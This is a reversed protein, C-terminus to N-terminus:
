FRFNWTISPIIGFLTTRVAETEGKNTTSERFDIRYANQRNYLNYFSLNLDSYRKSNDKITYTFGIDARHYNPMRYGNRQTYLNVLSGDVRYKGSPFTVADGTYYIFTGAVTLKKTLQYTVVVSVDHTRDQRASFWRGNNIATFQRETKALTYGIWGTLKGKNKRLLFEGGYARGIGFVLDAEIDPNLFADAGDKYDAVNNLKKYYTEFNFEYENEKFNKFFGISVQDAFLPKLIPSSMLYMDTPEGASSNSLLHLYQFNRNYSAKISTKENLVFTANFRPEFGQYTNFFQGKNFAWIDIIEGQSNYTKSDTPGVNQFLSYRLGYSLSLKQGIKQENSIYFGSEFAQRQRITLDFNRLSTDTTSFRGPSLTHHIVNWGFAISNKPNAYYNFDQKINWDKIGSTLNILRQSEKIRFGYNYDSYILSTNLFLKQSFNHNWRLTATKNGWDFGFDSVGFNDRGLYGSVYIRDKKTIQYNAKLNYDYFYLTNNRITDIIAKAILDAYTRRASFILSGKDKKIPGEVTLRSSILGIGGSVSWKQMNGNKMRIDLVSSARGGYQAPVGGKYLKVDKLADSNFVSFFGLLHSANYVPAEDLLILNQDANGGRVFFGSNGEGSTKVGPLMQITKLIDQEGFLVPIKKVDKVDLTITSMENKTVNEDNAKAKVVVEDLVKDIPNMKITLEQNDTLNIQEIATKYGMYSAVITYSGKPITLSYFGYLNTSTGINTGQVAVTAYLLEEGTKADRLYGSLTYKTQSFAGFSFSLFLLFTIAKQM